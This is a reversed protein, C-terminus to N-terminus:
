TLIIASSFRSESTEEKPMKQSSVTNLMTTMQTAFRVVFREQETNVQVISVFNSIRRELYLLMKGKDASASSV